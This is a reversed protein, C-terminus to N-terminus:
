LVLSAPPASRHWDSISQNRGLGSLREAKTHGNHRSIIKIAGEHEGVLFAPAYSRQELKSGWVIQLKITEDLLQASDGLREQVHQRQELL